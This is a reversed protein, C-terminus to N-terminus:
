SPRSRADMRTEFRLDRGTVIGVLDGGATVPVGSIGHARTLELV